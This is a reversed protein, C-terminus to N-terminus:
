TETNVWMELIFNDGSPIIQRVILYDDIREGEAASDLIGGSNASIM